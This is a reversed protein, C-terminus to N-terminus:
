QFFFDVDSYAIPALGRSATTTNRSYVAQPERPHTHLIIRSTNSTRFTHITIWSTHM